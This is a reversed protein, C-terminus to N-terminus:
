LLVRFLQAELKLFENGDKGYNAMREERLNRKRKKTNTSLLLRSNKLTKM